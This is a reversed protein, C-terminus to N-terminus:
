SLTTNFEGIIVSNHVEEKLETLLQKIYKATRKNPAYINIIHIGKQPVSEKTM